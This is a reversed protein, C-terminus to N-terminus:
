QQTGQWFGTGDPENGLRVAKLTYYYGNNWGQTYHRIVNKIYTAYDALITPQILPQQFVIYPEMGQNVIENVVLDLASFNYQTSDNANLPIPMEFGTEVFKFRAQRSLAAANPDSYPGAVTSFLYDNFAGQTNSYNLSVQATDINQSFSNLVGFGSNLTLIAVIISIKKM